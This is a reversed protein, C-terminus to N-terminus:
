LMELIYQGHHAPNGILKRQGPDVVFDLWDLPIQGIAVPCEDPLEFVDLPCERGEITLRVTGFAKLDTGGTVSMSRQTHSSTLGLQEIFRKPLGMVTCGTDVVAEEVEVRRVEEPKIEGRSARYLDHLNEIRAPTTVRGVETESELTTPM